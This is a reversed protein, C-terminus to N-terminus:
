NKVEKKNPPTAAFFYSLILGVVVMWILNSRATLDSVMLSSQPAFLFRAFVVSSLLTGVVGAWTGFRVAVLLIISIFLLPLYRKFSSEHFLLSFCGATTTCLIVGMAPSGFIDRWWTLSLSALNQQTVYRVHLTPHLYICCLHRRRAAVRSDRFDCRCHEWVACFQRRTGACSLRSSGCSETIDIVCLM